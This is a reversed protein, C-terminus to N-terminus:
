KACISITLHHFHCINIIKVVGCLFIKIRHRNHHLLLNHLTIHFDGALLVKFAATFINQVAPAIGMRRDAASLPARRGTVYFPFLPSIARKERKITYKDSSSLLVSAKFVTGEHEFNLVGNYKEAMHAVSQTGIGMGDHKSSLFLNDKRKTNGDYSNNIKIAIMSSGAIGM